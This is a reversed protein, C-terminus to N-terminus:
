HIVAVLMKMANCTALVLMGDHQNMGVFEEGVHASSVEVPPQLLLELQGM